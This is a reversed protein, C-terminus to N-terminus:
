YHPTKLESREGVLLPLIEPYYDILKSMQINNGSKEDSNQSWLRNEQSAEIIMVKGCMKKQQEIVKSEVGELLSMVKFWLDDAQPALSLFLDEKLVDEHFCGPFYLVGGVGTPLIRPSPSFDDRCIKWESYSELKSDKNFVIKRGRYCHIINPNERYENVLREIFNIPYLIDDDITIILDEPYKKLTPILKTYSKIDKCFEIQLGKKEAKLLMEPLTRRSFETESLWLIIRDAKISQRFISEIVLYVDNVRLGHSTLSVITNKQNHIVGSIGTEQSTLASNQLNLTSMRTYTLEIIKSQLRVDNLIDQLLYKHLYSKYNYYPLLLLSKFLTRIKKLTILM